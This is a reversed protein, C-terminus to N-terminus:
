SVGGTTEATGPRVFGREVLGEILEEDSLNANTQMAKFKAIIEPTIVRGKGINQETNPKLFSGLLPSIGEQGGSYGYTGDENQFVSVRAADGLNRRGADFAEAGTRFKNEFNGVSAAADVVNKLNGGSAMSLGARLLAANLLEKGTSEYSPNLLQMLRPNQEVVPPEEVVTQPEPVPQEGGFFLPLSTTGLLGMSLGTEYRQKSIAAQRAAERQAAAAAEREATAAQAARTKEGLKMRGTPKPITKPQAKAFDDLLGKQAKTLGEGMTKATPILGRETSKKINGSIIEQAKKRAAPSKAIQRAIVGVGQSLLGLLPLAM